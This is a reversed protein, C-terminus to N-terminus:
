TTQTANSPTYSYIAIRGSQHVMSFSSNVTPQGYWGTGNIWWILYIQSNGEQAATAAASAPDGYEYLVVQDMNLTSLAWGYFARHTLLRANHGLDNKFWQLANATDRCDTISVTNQLMSTPIQYVYGNFNVNFYPSPNEPPLLMFGVSLVSMMLVLYVIVVRRLTFGFRKWSVSKLRSLTETVYFALPYTFMLAWRFNSLTVIPVIMLFLSLLVWSRIQLNGFRKVSVLALPLLPLYCYLLFGAESILMAPYSSFNSLPWGTNTSFDFFNSGTVPILSFIIFFISAPLSIVLLRAAQGYGKRLLRHFVTVLIVGLMIVSVLQQALVVGIMLFSLLLCRKWSRVTQQEKSLLTLVVFFFILALENRLLDWSVRLAVFYLTSFLAVATSKIPSWSLGRRAYGYVSLGLFGHLIVPLIKLVAILPAGLSVFLAVTSYILPSSAFYSWLGVGNKLWSLTSPVYYGITDFGVAYPSMLIEPIARILLPVVFALLPFVYKKPM